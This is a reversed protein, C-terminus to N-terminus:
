IEITEYPVQYADADSASRIAAFEATTIPEFCVADGPSLLVPRPWHKNFLRIPTTGILHWGGPSELPYIATMASAIAISGAPVRTRPDPRRPLVLAEPLDGMYPYGPVFGIMYVHFRTGSHLRIVEDSGLGTREGVEALDPAHSAEYCAPIRWLKAPRTGVSADDILQKLRQILGVSDTALPDYHVMLSRYTPVAEFVGPLQAARVKAALRLVRDSLARDIVDGFEVALATDGASLFRVDM